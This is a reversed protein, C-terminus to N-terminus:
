PTGARALTDLAPLTGCQLLSRIRYVPVYKLRRRRKSSLLSRPRTRATWLWPRRLLRRVSSISATFLSPPPPAFFTFLTNVIWSNRWFHCLCLPAALQHVLRPPSSSPPPIVWDCSYVCFVPRARWFFSIVENMSRASVLTAIMDYLFVQSFM